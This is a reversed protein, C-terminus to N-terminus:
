SVEPYSVSYVRDAADAQFSFDIEPVMFDTQKHARALKSSICRYFRIYYQLGDHTTSYDLQFKPTTGIPQNTVTLTQGSAQTKYAYTIKLLAGEDAAAFTYIGGAAVSYQGVTPATGAAIKQFPLGTLAYVVGLDTDFNVGNAVTVTYPAAAPVTAAEREAMLMQGAAFTLGHFMANLAIGSVRAAKIKGTAKITARASDLAYQNTGYLDKNEGSEDYSFEQGFGVNVPTQNPIDIRTVYISGPGFVGIAM